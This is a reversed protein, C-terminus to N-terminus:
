SGAGAPPPADERERGSGGEILSRRRRYAEVEGDSPMLALLSEQAESQAASVLESLVKVEDVDITAPLAEAPEFSIAPATQCRM